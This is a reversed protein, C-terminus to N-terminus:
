HSSLALINLYIGKYTCIVGKEQLETQLQLCRKEFLVQTEQLARVPNSSHFSHNVEIM